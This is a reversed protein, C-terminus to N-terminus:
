VNHVLNNWHTVIQGAAQEPTLNELWFADSFRRFWTLQRKAYRRSSQAILDIAAQETQEGNLFALVEKYGIAQWATSGTNLSPHHQLLNRVEDALGSAFMAVVRRNIREYLVVRDHTLCIIQFDFSPGNLKSEAQHESQQKGTQYYVSAAQPDIHQLETYLHDLGEREVRSNLQERLQPDTDIEVFDIGEVLASIYQGTGGCIIAVHGRAQIDLIAQTALTKFAAVSFFDGPECCDILHHPVLQQEDPTVKATGIDLGRYIQMSDASIIEGSLAQAVLIATASKGSATPGCVVLVPQRQQNAMEFLGKSSNKSNM